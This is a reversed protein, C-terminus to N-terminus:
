RARLGEVVPVAVAPALLFGAHSVSSWALLGIGDRQALARRLNGVTMTVAAVVAMVAVWQPGATGFAYWLVVYIAGLAAAKSVTSLFAAVMTSAGGYTDPIWTHFPAGLKFFDPSPSCWRSRRWRARFPPWRSSSRWRPTAPSGTVAYLLSLGMWTIATATASVLFFTWSARIARADHRRLGVLAVSPLSLLELAVLLTVFDRAAAMM